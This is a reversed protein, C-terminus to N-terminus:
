SGAGAVVAAAGSGVDVAAAGGSGVEVVAAGAAVVGATEGVGGLLVAAEDVGGVGVGVGAAGLAGADVVGFESVALGVSVGTEDCCSLMGTLEDAATSGVESALTEVVVTSVVVVVDVTSTGTVLVTVDTSVVVTGTVVESLPTPVSATLSTEVAAVTKVAAGSVAVSAVVSGVTTELESEGVLAAVGPSRGPPTPVGWPLASAVGAALSSEIM